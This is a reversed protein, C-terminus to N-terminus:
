RYSVDVVLIDIEGGGCVGFTEDRDLMLCDYRAVAVEQNNVQVVTDTNFVIWTMELATFSGNPSLSLRRMAHTCRARRTMVNLDVTPGGANRSSIAWDGSFSFPAGDTRLDAQRGDPLDLTMGPGDLVAITRDIGAFVSFPGDAEVHAISLRWDFGAIDSGLPFAAVEETLGTGNRWPMRRYDARRAINM